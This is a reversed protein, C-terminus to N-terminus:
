PEIGLEHAARTRVGDIAAADIWGAEDTFISGPSSRYPRTRRSRYDYPDFLALQKGDNAHALQRRRTDSYIHGGMVRVLEDIARDENM